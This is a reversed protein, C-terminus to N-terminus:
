STLTNEEAYQRFYEFYHEKVDILNCVISFDNELVCVREGTKYNHTYIEGLPSILVVSRNFTFCSFEINLDDINQYPAIVRLFESNSIGFAKENKPSATLVKNINLRCIDKQKIYDILSGIMTANKSTIVTHVMVNIGNSKLYNITDNIKEFSNISSDKPPRITSLTKKDICDITIRFSINNRNKFKNAINMAKEVFTGNTDITISIEPDILEIIECLHPYLLPEGGSLTVHLVPSNNIRECIKKANEFDIEGFLDCAYCYICKLNCHSTLIWDINLIHAPKDIEIKNCFDLFETKNCERIGDCDLLESLSSSSKEFKSYDIINFLRYEFNEYDYITLYDEYIYHKM